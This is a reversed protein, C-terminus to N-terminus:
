QLTEKIWQKSDFPEDAHNNMFTFLDQILVRFVQHRQDGPETQTLLLYRRLNTYLTICCSLCATKEGEGIILRAAELIADVDLTHRDPSLPLM